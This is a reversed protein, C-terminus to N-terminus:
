EELEELGECDDLDLEEAEAGLLDEIEQDAGAQEWLELGKEEGHFRIFSEKTFPGNGDSPDKRKEVKAGGKSASKGKGKKGSSGKVASGKAAGKAGKATSTGAKGGKASGGSSFKQYSGTGGAAARGAGKGRVAGAGAQKWLSEGKKEGHYKIFSAYTFPGNNDSPDLRKEELAKGDGKKGGKRNDAKGVGKVKQDSHRVMTTTKGAKGKGGVGM